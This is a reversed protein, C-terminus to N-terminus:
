GAVAIGRMTLAEGIGARLAAELSALDGSNDVTETALSAYEEDTMQMRMRRKADEPHMGRRMLRELRVDEDARVALIYDCTDLFGKQVPIPVDLVVAKAGDREAKKRLVELRAMVQEHVIMSLRDLAKRDRFVRSGMKERDLSGDERVLEEGFAEAIAPMASGGPGTVEHSVADADLVPFGWSGIIGAVTSKGSGIGGTVGIVFM